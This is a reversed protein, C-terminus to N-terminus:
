VPVLTRPPPPEPRGTRGVLRRAAAAKRHRGVAPEASIAEQRLAAVGCVAHCACPTASVGNCGGPMGSGAGDAFSLAAIGGGAASGHGLDQGVAQQALGFGLLVAIVALLTQARM